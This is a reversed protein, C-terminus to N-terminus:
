RKGKPFTMKWLFKEAFRKKTFRFFAAFWSFPLPIRILIPALRRFLAPHQTIIPWLKHLREVLVRQQIKLTSRGFFQVDVPSKEQTYGEHFAKDHVRTGSYAQLIACWSSTPNCKINFDLTEYADALPDPVPLGIMNQLRSRMGHKRVLWLARVVAEKGCTRKLVQIRNGDNACELAMNIVTGGAKALLSANHETLDDPRVSCFFPLGVRSLWEETFEELWEDSTVFNDDVFNIMKVPWKKKIEEAEDVVLSPSRHRVIEPLQGKHLRNWHHNFCYSCSYKCGRRSIMNKIPSTMLDPFHYVLDRDPESVADVDVLKLHEPLAGDVINVITEEGEGRVVIRGRPYVNFLKPTFTVAPGGFVSQFSGHAHLRTDLDLYYKETGSCVSYCVFDPNWQKVIKKPSKGYDCRALKTEHGAKKLAASLYMIGLPEMVLKEAVFLVRM